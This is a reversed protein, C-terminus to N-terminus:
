LLRLGVQLGTGRLSCCLKRQSQVTTEPSLIKKLIAENGHSVALYVKGDHTWSATPMGGNSAFQPKDLPPADPFNKADAVFLDVHGSDKLGYCLMSVKQGRWDLVRCGMLGNKGNLAVPLIFKNEGHHGALWAVAEKMDNM